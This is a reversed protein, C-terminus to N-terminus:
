ASQAQDGTGADEIVELESEVALVSAHVFAPDADLLVSVYYEDAMIVSGTLGMLQRRDAAAVPTENNVAWRVIKVKTGPALPM